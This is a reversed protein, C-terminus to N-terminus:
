LRPPVAPASAGGEVLKYPKFRIVEEGLWDNLELMRAQLPQIENRAFVSAAKEVDGFGSDKEPVIGMLQPPVRHGSLQDGRTEAKIASFDDKTSIESLPIVQIGKEKGNPSYVFLNKFNGPGKANKMAKRVEDVEAQTQLAGNLYLIFGAHNGNLYYKRRFLTAAENLWTSNLAALYEPLGYIEQNVDPELLHFVQNRPFEYPDRLSPVYWFAGPEIGRRTYKALSPLLELPQGLKNRRLELYANGFILYDLVFRSFSQVSLLKTPELTSVLINRKVFIPSSHHIAARFSRALGDFSLPPEYWRDFLTPCELYDFLERQDLMPIADDFSFAEAQALPASTSQKVPANKSHRRNKSM